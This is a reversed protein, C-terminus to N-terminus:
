TGSTCSLIRAYPGPEASQTRSGIWPWRWTAGHPLWPRQPCHGSHIQGLCLLVYSCLGAQRRAIGPRLHGLSQPALEEAVLAINGLRQLVPQPRLAQRPDRGSACVHRRLGQRPLGWQPQPFPRHDLGDVIWQLVNGLNCMGPMPTHGVEQDVPDTAQNGVAMWRLLRRDPERVHWQPGQRLRHLRGSSLHNPCVQGQSHRYPSHSPIGYPLDLLRRLPPLRNRVAPGHGPLWGRSPGWPWSWSSPCLPICAVARSARTPFPICVKWCYPPTTQMSPPLDLDPALCTLGSDVSM